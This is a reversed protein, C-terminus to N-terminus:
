TDKIFTLNCKKIYGNRHKLAQAICGKTVGISKAAETMSNFKKNLEKCFLKIGNVEIKNSRGLLVAPKEVGNKTNDLQHDVIFKDYVYAAEELSVYSGLYTSKWNVMIRVEYNGTSIIKSVGKYGTTNNKQKRTNQTQTSKSAWRINGREYGKNNEIRDMSYGLVRREYYPVNKMYTEWIHFDKFEETVTIGRGGYSKYNKNKKNSCRAMMGSWTAYLETGHAGHVKPVSCSHCYGTKSKTASYAESTYEEKCSNCLFIVMRRKQKDLENKFQMGLDKVITAKYKEQKLAKLKM